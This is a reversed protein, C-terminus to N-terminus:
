QEGYLLEGEERLEELGERLLPPDMSPKRVGIGALTQVALRGLAPLGIRKRGKVTSLLTVKAYECFGDTSGALAPKTRNKELYVSENVPVLVEARLRQLLGVAPPIRM